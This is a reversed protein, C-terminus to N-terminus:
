DDDPAISYFLNKKESTILLKKIKGSTDAYTRSFISIILFLFLLLM